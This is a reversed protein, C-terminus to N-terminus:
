SSTPRMAKACVDAGDRPLDKQTLMQFPVV